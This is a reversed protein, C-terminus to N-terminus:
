RPMKITQGVARADPAIRISRRYTIHVPVFLDSRSQRMRADITLTADLALLMADDSSYYATGDMRMTGSIAADALGPLAGNMPGAAEFRVAVSPRGDIPGNTGPRLLGRLVTAGGLPSGASFPVARRLERVDRMTAADLQVAFPQNLITLFDPDDDVRDEFSGGPMLEAVFRAQASSKGEAANRVFRARAEFRTAKGDPKISLSETGAYAVRSVTSTSEVRYVDEGTLDYRVDAIAPRPVPLLAAVL